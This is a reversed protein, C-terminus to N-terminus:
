LSKSFIFYLPPNRLVYAPINDFGIAQNVKGGELAKLFTLVSIMYQDLLEKNVTFMKHNTNLRPLHYSVSVFVDSM